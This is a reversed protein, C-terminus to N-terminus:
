GSSPLSLSFSIFLLYKSRYSFVCLRFCTYFLLFCVLVSKVSFPLFSLVPSLLVFSHSPSLSIFHSPLSLVSQTHWYLLCPASPSKVIALRAVNGMNIMRKTGGRQTLLPRNEKKKQRERKEWRSMNTGMSEARKWLDFQVSNCNNLM